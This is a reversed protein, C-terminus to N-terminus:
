TCRDTDLWGGSGKSAAGCLVKYWWSSIRLCADCPSIKDRTALPFLDTQAHTHTHFAPTTPRPSSSSTSSTLECIYSPPCLLLLIQERGTEADALPLPMSVSDCLSLDVIILPIPLFAESAYPCPPSLSIGLALFAVLLLPESAHETCAAVAVRGALLIFLHM